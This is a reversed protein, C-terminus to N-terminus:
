IHRHCRPKRRGAFALTFIITSAIVFFVIAILLALALVDANPTNAPLELVSTPWLSALASAGAFPGLIAAAVIGPWGSRMWQRAATRLLDHAMHARVGWIARRTGVAAAEARAEEFDRTMEAAFERRFAPPCALLAARYLRVDLPVSLPMTVIM